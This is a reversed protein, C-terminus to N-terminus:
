TTIFKHVLLNQIRLKKKIRKKIVLVYHVANRIIKENYNTQTKDLNLALKNAACWKSM